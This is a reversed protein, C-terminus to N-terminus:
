ELWNKIAVFLAGLMFLLLAVMYAITTEEAFEIFEDYDEFFWVKKYEEDFTAGGGASSWSTYELFISVEAIQFNNNRNEDVFLQYTGPALEIMGAEINYNNNWAWTCPVNLVTGEFYLFFDNDQECDYATYTLITNSNQSVTFDTLNYPFTYGSSLNWLGSFDYNFVEDYASVSSFSFLLAILLIIKKSM